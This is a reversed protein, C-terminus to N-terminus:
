TAAAFRHLHRQGAADIADTRGIIWRRCGAAGCQCAFQRYLQDETEAYDITLWAGAKLPRLTVLERRVMDLRCNPDCGHSLFGIFLTNSIHLGPSVQLSHQTLEPGIEGDFRDLVQGAAADALLRIGLGREASFCIALVEDSGDGASFDFRESRM